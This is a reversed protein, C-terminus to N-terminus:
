EPHQNNRRSNDQTDNLEEGDEPARGHALEFYHKLLHKLNDNDSQLQEAKKKVKEHEEESIFVGFTGTIEPSVNITFAEGSTTVDYTTTTSSNDTTMDLEITDSTHYSTNDSYTNTLNGYLGYDGGFGDYIDRFYDKNGM